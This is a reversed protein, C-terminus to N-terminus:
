LSAATEVDLFLPYAKEDEVADAVEVDITVLKGDVDYGPLIISSRRHKIGDVDFQSLVFEGIKQTVNEENLSIVKRNM